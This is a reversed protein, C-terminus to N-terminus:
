SMVGCKCGMMLGMFWALYVSEFIMVCGMFWETEMMYGAICIAAYILYIANAIRAGKNARRNLVIMGAVGMMTIFMTRSMMNHAWSVITTRGSPDKMFGVPFVSLGMLTTVLVVIAWYYIKPMRWAQGLRWLYKAMLIAVAVNGMAFMMVSWLELGVYKSISWDFHLGYRLVFSNVVIATLATGLFVALAGVM